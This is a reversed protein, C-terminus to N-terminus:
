DSGILVDVGTSGMLGLNGVLGSADLTGPGSLSLDFNNIQTVGMALLQAPNFSFSGGNTSTIVEVGSITVADLTVGQNILLTDTGSGGDIVDNVAGQSTVDITDNGDGANITDKGSGGSLYDDGGAGTLSDNGDGGLLRDSKEAGKLIDNGGLGSLEDFRQATVGGVTSIVDLTDAAATGELYRAISLTYQTGAPQAGDAYLEVWGKGGMFTEGQPGWRDPKLVYSQGSSLWVVDNGSADKFYLENGDADVVHFRQGAGGGDLTFRLSKGIGLNGFDFKFVDIDGGYQAAGKIFQGWTAAVFSGDNVSLAGARSNSYDDLVLNGDSFQLTQVNRLLDVGDAGGGKHTVQWQGSGLTVVDYDARAGLYSVTNLGAGGELTDNGGGGRLLDNGDGGEISDSVAGGFL